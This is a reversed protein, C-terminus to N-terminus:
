AAMPLRLADAPRGQGQARRGGVAALPRGRLLLAAGEFREPALSRALTAVLRQAASPEPCLHLQRCVQAPQLYALVMGFAM